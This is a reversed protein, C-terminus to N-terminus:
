KGTLEFTATVEVYEMPKTGPEKSIKSRLRGRIIGKNFDLVDVEIKGPEYLGWTMLYRFHLPTGIDLLYANHTGASLSTFTAYFRYRRTTATTVLGTTWKQAAPDIFQKLEITETADTLTHTEGEITFTIKGKLVRDRATCVEADPIKTVGGKVPHLPLFATAHGSEKDTIQYEFAESGSCMPLEIAFQGNEFPITQSYGAGKITIEGKKVPQKDCDVAKGEIKGFNSNSVNLRIVQGNASQLPGVTATYLVTGCNDRLVVECPIGRPLYTAAEGNSNTFVEHSWQAGQRRGDKRKYTVSYYALANGNQQVFQQKSFVPPAEDAVCSFGAKPVDYVYRDDKKVATGIEKWLGEKLEYMWATANNPATARAAEPILVHMTVLKGKVVDVTDISTEDRLLTHVMVYPHLVMMEKKANVGRMDGPQRAELGPIGAEWWRYYFRPYIPGLANKTYNWFSQDGHTIAVHKPYVPLTTGSTGILNGLLYNMIQKRFFHGKDQQLILPVSVPVASSSEMVILTADERLAPENVTFIGNGDTWGYNFWPANPYIGFVEFGRHDVPAGTVDSVLQGTITAPLKRGRDPPSVPSGPLEASKEQCAFFTVICLLPLVLHTLYRFM